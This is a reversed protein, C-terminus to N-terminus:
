NSLLQSFRECVLCCFFYIFHGSLNLNNFFFNLWRTRVLHVCCLKCLYQYEPSASFPLFCIFAFFCSLSILSAYSLGSTVSPKEAVDAVVLCVASVSGIVSLPSQSNAAYNQQPRCFFFGLVFCFMEIRCFLLVWRRHASSQTDTMFACLCAQPRWGGVVSAEM